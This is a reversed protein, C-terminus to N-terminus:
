TEGGESSVPQARLARALDAPHPRADQCTGQHDPHRARHEDHEAYAREIAARLAETGTDPQLPHGCSPCLYTGAKITGSQRTPMHLDPDEELVAAPEAEALDVTDRGVEKRYRPQILVAAPEAELAEAIRDYAAAVGCDCNGGDPWAGPLGCSRDHQFTQGAAVGLADRLREVEEILAPLQNRAEAILIADEPKLPSTTYPEDRKRSFAVYRYKDGHISPGHRWPGLTAAAELERLRPLDLKTM